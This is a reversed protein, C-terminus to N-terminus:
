FRFAATRYLKTEYCFKQKTNSSQATSAQTLQSQQTAANPTPVNAVNRSRNSHTNFVRRVEAETESSTQPTSIRSSLETLNALIQHVIGAPDNNQGAMKFLISLTFVLMLYTRSGSNLAVTLFRSM